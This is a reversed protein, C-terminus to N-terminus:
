SKQRQTAMTQLHKLSGTLLTMIRYFEQEILKKAKIKDEETDTKHNAQVLPDKDLSPINQQAQSMNADPNEETDIDEESPNSSHITSTEDSHLGLLSLKNALQRSTIPAVSRFGGRSVHSTRSGTPVHTFGQQPAKPATRPPVSPGPTKLNRQPLPPQRPTSTAYADTKRQFIPKPTEGHESLQDDFLPPPAVFTRNGPNYRAESGSSSTDEQHGKYSM